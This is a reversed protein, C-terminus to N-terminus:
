IIKFFYGLKGSQFRQLPSSVVMRNDELFAIDTGFCNQDSNKEKFLIETRQFKGKIYCRGTVFIEDFLEFGLSKLSLFLFTKKLDLLHM